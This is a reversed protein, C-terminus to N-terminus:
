ANWFDLLARRADTRVREPTGPVDIVARLMLLWDELQRRCDERVHEYPSEISMSAFLKLCLASYSRAQVADDSM